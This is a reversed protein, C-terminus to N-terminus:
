DLLCFPCKIWHAKIIRNCEPCFKIDGSISLMSQKLSLEEYNESIECYPCKQWFKSMTKGCEPCVLKTKKQKSLIIEFFDINQLISNTKSILFKTKNELDMNLEMDKQLAVSKSTKTEFNLNSSAPLINTKKKLKENGSPSKKEDDKKTDFYSGRKKAKVKSDAIKGSRKGIASAGSYIKRKRKKNSKKDVGAFEVDEKTQKKRKKLIFLSSLIILTAIVSIILIPFINNGGSESVIKIQSPNCSREEGDLL